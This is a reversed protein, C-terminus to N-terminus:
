HNEFRRSRIKTNTYTNKLHIRELVEPDMGAVDEGKALADRIDTARGDHLPVFLVRWNPLGTFNAGAKKRFRAFRTAAPSNMGAMPTGERNFIVIPVTKFIRGWAEWKHFSQLNDAGMLWVFQVDPHAAKLACLTHYTFRTHIRHEFDSIKLWPHGESMAECMAFREEFPAMGHAEKLPNQPSVMLWVEDLQLRRYAEHAMQLHGQHPPNFSGGYIGILRQSM